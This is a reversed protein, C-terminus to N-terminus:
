KQKTKMKSKNKLSLLVLVTFSEKTDEVSKQQMTELKESGASLKDTSKTWVSYHIKALYLLYSKIYKEM